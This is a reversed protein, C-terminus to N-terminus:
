ATKFLRSPIGYGVRHRSSPTFALFPLVGNYDYNFVTNAWGAWYAPAIKVGPEVDLWVIVPDGNSPLTLQKAAIASIFEGITDM